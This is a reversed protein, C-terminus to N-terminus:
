TALFAIAPQIDPRGRKCLFLGKAVFTHFQESKEKGLKKLKEDVKFLKENWPCKEKGELKEPFDEVMNKVYKVMNVKLVGTSSYELIMALYDHKKGRTSKVEGINDNAYKKKLWLLFEDNVKSDIHSSKLDDVHWTITQQSGNVTRNAVCQDYPNIKFGIEEIDKRFQKYYLLSSQMMGYLPRKMEVYLVKKENEYVVYKGYTEDLETLIDVLLGRIKMVIKEDTPEVTAQLFANPIDATMIDRKQKAEITGTIL